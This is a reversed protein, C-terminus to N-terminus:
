VSISISLLRRYKVVKLSTIRLEAQLDGGVFVIAVNKLAFLFVHESQSKRRRGERMWSAKWM